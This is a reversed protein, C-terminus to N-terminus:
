KPVGGEAVLGSRLTDGEAVLGSRLTDNNFQAIKVTSPPTVDIVNKHLWDNHYNPLPRDCSGGCVTKAIDSVGRGM